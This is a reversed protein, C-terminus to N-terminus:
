DACSLPLLLRIYQVKMRGIRLVQVLIRGSSPVNGISFLSVAQCGVRRDGKYRKPRMTKPLSFSARNIYIGMDSDVLMSPLLGGALCM